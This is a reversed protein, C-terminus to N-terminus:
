IVKVALKKAFTAHLFSANRTKGTIDRADISSVSILLHKRRANNTHSGIAGACIIKAIFCSNSM